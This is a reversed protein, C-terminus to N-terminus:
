RAPPVTVEAVYVLDSLPSNDANGSNAAVNFAVPGGGDPAVWRLTWSSGGGGAASGDRTQHAYVVGVSDEIAVRADVPSLRGASRARNAGDAFRSALEFGAVSTEEAELIVTLVYETGPVWAAPLGRLAM